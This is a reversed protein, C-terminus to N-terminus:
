GLATKIIAALLGLFLAAGIPYTTLIRLKQIRNEFDMKVEYQINGVRRRNLVAPSHSPPRSSALDILQWYGDDAM